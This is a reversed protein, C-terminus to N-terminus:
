PTADANSASPTSDDSVDAGHTFRREYRERNKILNEYCPRLQPVLQTYPDWLPLLVFDIFDRQLKGRQRVDEMRFQMFPAPTRGAALEQAAQSAFEQSIRAEWQAAVPWPLTQGSLDSSHIICSLVLQRDQNVNEDWGVGSRALILQCLESHRVMDTDLICRIIERRLAAREPRSLGAALDQSPTRLLECARFAHYNELVSVDNYRLALENESEVLFANTVGPHDLDHCLASVLLALVDLFRLRQILETTCLQFYCTQFVSFAHYWNHFANEQYRPQVAAAWDRVNSEPICCAEVCGTHMLVSAALDSLEDAPWDLASFELSCLRPAPDLLGVDDFDFDGDARSLRRPRHRWQFLELADTRALNKSDLVGSSSSSANGAPIGGPLPPVALDQFGGSEDRGRAPHSEAIMALAEVNGFSACNELARWRQRYFSDSILMAVKQLEAVDEDTFVADPGGHKNLVQIVGITRGDRIMHKIPLSLLTKVAYGTRKEVSPDFSKHAHADALNILKGDHAVLGVIGQDWPISFPELDVSGVCWVERRVHDVFFVSCRDADLLRMVEDVVATVYTQLGTSGASIINLFDVHPRYDILEASVGFVSKVQRAHRMVTSVQTWVPKKQDARNMHNARLDQM